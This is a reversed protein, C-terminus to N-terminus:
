HLSERHADGTAPAVETGDCTRLVPELATVLGSPPVSWTISSGQRVHEYPERNSVAFLRSGNLKDRMSIRLREPTWISLGADRLRAEEEAAARAATLSSAILSVERTLPQLM